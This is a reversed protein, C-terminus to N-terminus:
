RRIGTLHHNKRSSVDRSRRVSTRRARARLALLVEATTPLDTSPAVLRAVVRGHDTLEVVAGQQARRILQPLRRRAESLSWRSMCLVYM